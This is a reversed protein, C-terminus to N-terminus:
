FNENTSAGAGAGADAGAKEEFAEFDDKASGGSGFKDGHGLWQVNQLYFTVGWNGKKVYSAPTLSLRAYCGGYILDRPDRIGEDAMYQEITRLDPMVIGPRFGSRSKMVWHGVADGGIQDGDRIPPNTLDSMSKFKGPFAAQGVKNVAAILASVDASKPMLFTVEYKSDEGTEPDKAKEMLHPYSLRGRPTKVKEGKVDASKSKAATM